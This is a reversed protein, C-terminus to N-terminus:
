KLGVFRTNTDNGPRFDVSNEAEYYVLRNNLTDQFSFVSNTNTGIYKLWIESDGEEVRVTSSNVISLRLITLNLQTCSDISIVNEDCNYYAGSYEGVINRFTTEELSEDNVGCSIM